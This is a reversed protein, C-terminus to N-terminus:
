KLDESEFLVMSLPFGEMLFAETSYEYGEDVLFNILGRVDEEINMMHKGYQKSFYVDSISFNDKMKGQLFELTENDYASIIYYYSPYEGSENVIVMSKIKRMKLRGNKMLNLSM